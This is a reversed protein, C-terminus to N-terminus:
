LNSKNLFDTLRRIAQARHSIRNKEDLNMEAFTRDYGDPLFVPDYGFGEMGRKDTLIQGSIVGEFLYKKREIILSIVTRFRARRNTQHELLRLLKRINASSFDEGELIEDTLAAFRASYVGPAGNLAVVELGTDDAFCDMGFRKYTFAAKSLANGELTDLDEPIDGTYGLDSLSLIRIRNQIVHQIERIKNQNRTAFLLKKM